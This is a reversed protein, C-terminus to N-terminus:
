TTVSRCAPPALMASCITLSIRMLGRPCSTGLFQLHPHESRGIVMLAINIQDLDGSYDGSSAEGILLQKARDLLESVSKSRAVCFSMVEGAGKEKGAIKKLEASAAKLVSLEQYVRESTHSVAIVLTM